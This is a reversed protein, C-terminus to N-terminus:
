SGRDASKVNEDPLWRSLNWPWSKKKKIKKEPSSKKKQPHFNKIEYPTRECPPSAHCASVFAFVVNRLYYPYYLFFFFFSPRFNISRSWWFSFSTAQITKWNLSIACYWNVTVWWKAVDSKCSEKHVQCPM